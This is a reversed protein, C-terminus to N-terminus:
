FNDLGSSRTHKTCSFVVRSVEDSLLRLVEPQEALFKMWNRHIVQAAPECSAIRWCDPVFEFDVNARNYFRIFPKKTTDPQGYGLSVFWQALREFVKEGRRSSKEQLFQMVVAGVTVGPASHKIIEMLDFELGPIQAQSSRNFEIVLPTYTDIFGQSAGPAFRICNNERLYWFAIALLNDAFNDTYVQVNPQCLVNTGGRYRPSTITSTSYDTMIPLFRHAFFAMALSASFPAASSEAVKSDMLPPQHQAALSTKEILPQGDDQCFRTEADEYTKQCFPCIKM